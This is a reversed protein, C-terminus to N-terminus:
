ICVHNSLYTTKGAGNPGILAHINGQLLSFDVHNVATLGAYQKTLAKTNLLANM